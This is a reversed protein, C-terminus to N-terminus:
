NTHLTFRMLCMCNYVFDIKPEELKPGTYRAKAIWEDEWGELVVDAVAQEFPVHIMDPLDDAKDKVTQCEDWSPFVYTESFPTMEKLAHIPFQSIDDSTEAPEDPETDVDTAESHDDKSPHDAKLLEDVKNSQDLLIQGSAGFDSHEGDTEAGDDPHTLKGSDEMRDASHGRITDIDDVDNEDTSDEAHLNGPVKATDKQQFPPINVAPTAHPSALAYHNDSDEVVKPLPHMHHGFADMVRPSDPRSNRDDELTESGRPAIQQPPEEVDGHQAKSFTGSRYLVVTLLAFLAYYYKKFSRRQRYPPYTHGLM